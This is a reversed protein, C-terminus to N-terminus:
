VCAISRFGWALWSAASKRTASCRPLDASVRRAFWSSPAGLRAWRASSISSSAACRSRTRPARLQEESLKDPSQSFHKALQSDAHLYAAQTRAAFVHLQMGELMRQRLPTM